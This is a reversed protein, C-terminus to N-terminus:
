DDLRMKPGSNSAMNARWEDASGPLLTLIVLRLYVCVYMCTYMCVYMCAYKCVYMYAYMCVHMCVHMGSICVRYERKSPRDCLATSRLDVLRINGRSTGYMLQSCIFPHFTATTIVENLEQLDPPKIDIIDARVACLVVHFFFDSLCM